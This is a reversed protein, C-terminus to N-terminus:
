KKAPFCKCSSREKYDASMKDATRRIKVDQDKELYVPLCSAGDKRWMQGATDYPTHTNRHNKESGCIFHDEKRHYPQASMIKRLKDQFHPKGQECDPMNFSSVRARKGLFSMPQHTLM